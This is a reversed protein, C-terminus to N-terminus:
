RIIAENDNYWWHEMSFAFDFFISKTLSNKFFFLKNVLERMKEINIDHYTYVYQKLYVLFKPFENIIERYQKRNLCAFTNFNRSVISATRKCKYILQIEGFHCGETLLDVAQHTFQEADTINVVCDGKMIFYMM